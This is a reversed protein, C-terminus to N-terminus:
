HVTAVVVGLGVVVVGVAVVVEVAVVICRELQVGGSHHNALGEGDGYIASCFLNAFYNNKFRSQVFVRYVFISRTLVCSGFVMRGTNM